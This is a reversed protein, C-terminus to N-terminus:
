MSPRYIFYGLSLEPFIQNRGNQATKPGFNGRKTGFDVNRSIDELRKMSNQQNKTLFSTKHDEKPFILYVTRSIDPEAWKPGKFDINSSINELRKM